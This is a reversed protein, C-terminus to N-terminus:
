KPASPSPQQEWKTLIADYRKSQEEWKQLLADMRKADRESLELIAVQRKLIRDAEQAQQESAKLQRDYEASQADYQAQASSTGQPPGASPDCATLAVCLLPLSLRQYKM